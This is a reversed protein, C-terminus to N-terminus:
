KLIVESLSSPAKETAGQMGAVIVAESLASVGKAVFFERLKALARGIRKRTAAENLGFVRSVEAVEMARLFRLILLERDAGRLSALGDDLMRTLVESEADVAPEMARVGKMTVEGRECRRRMRRRM